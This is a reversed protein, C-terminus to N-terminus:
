GPFVRPCAETPLNGVKCSAPIGESSTIRAMVVLAASISPQCSSNAGDLGPFKSIEDRYGAVGYGVYGFELTDPKDHLVSLHDSIIESRVSIFFSRMMRPGGALPTFDSQGAVPPAAKDGM